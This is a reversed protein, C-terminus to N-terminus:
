AQQKKDLGAHDSLVILGKMRAFSNVCNMM